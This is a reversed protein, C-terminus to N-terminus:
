GNIKKKKIIEPLIHDKLMEFHYYERFFSTLNTTIANIFHTFEVHKKDKLLECYEDFTALGTQRLRRVLRSYVMNQKSNTLVIGSHATIINRIKEFHEDSFNFEKEILM